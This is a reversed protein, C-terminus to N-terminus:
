VIMVEEEILGYIESVVRNIMRNTAKIKYETSSKEIEM